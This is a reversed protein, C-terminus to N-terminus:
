DSLWKTWKDEIEKVIDDIPRCTDVVMHSGQAYLPEREGLVTKLEQLVDVGTLSPRQSGSV